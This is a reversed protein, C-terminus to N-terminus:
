SLLKDVFRQIVINPIRQNQGVTHDHVCLRHADKKTSKFKLRKEQLNYEFVKFTSIGHGILVKDGICFLSTKM